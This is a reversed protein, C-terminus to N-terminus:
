FDYGFEEIDEKYLAAVREISRDDYYTRYHDHKGTNFHPLVPAEDLGIAKCVKLYDEEFSEYRGIFDTQIVGDKSIWKVQPVARYHTPDTSAVHKNRDNTCLFSIFEPLSLKKGIKSWISIVKDWPNRVFAFSFYGRSKYEMLKDPHTNWGSHMKLNHHRIQWGRVDKIEKGDWNKGLPALAGLISTGGTKPIHIFVFKHSLSIFM